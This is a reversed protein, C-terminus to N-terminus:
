QGHDQQAGEAAALLDDFNCDLNLWHEIHRLICIKATEAKLNSRASTFFILYLREICLSTAPIALFKRAM